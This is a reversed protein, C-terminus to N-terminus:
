NMMLTQDAASTGKVQMISLVCSCSQIHSMDAFTTLIEKKDSNRQGRSMSVSFKERSGAQSDGWAIWM